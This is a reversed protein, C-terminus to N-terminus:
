KIFFGNNSALRTSIVWIAEEQPLPAGSITFASEETVLEDAALTGARTITLVSVVVAAGARVSVINDGFVSVRFGVGGLGEFFGAGLFAGFCVGMVLAGTVLAGAALAGADLFYAIIKGVRACPRFSIYSFL